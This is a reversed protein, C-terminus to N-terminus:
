KISEMQPSSTILASTREHVTNSIAIWWNGHHLVALSQSLACQPMEGHLTCLAMEQYVPSSIGAVLDM